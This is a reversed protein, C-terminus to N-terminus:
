CGHSSGATPGWLCKAFNLNAAEATSLPLNSISVYRKAGLRKRHIICVYFECAFCCLRM